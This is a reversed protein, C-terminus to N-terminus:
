RSVRQLPDARSAVGDTCLVLDQRGDCRDGSRPVNKLRDDSTPRLLQQLSGQFHLFQQTAAAVMPDRLEPAVAVAVQTLVDAQHPYSCHFDPDGSKPFNGPLHGRVAELRREHVSAFAAGLRLHRQQGVEAQLAEGAAVELPDPAPPGSRSATVSCCGAARDPTPRLLVLQPSGPGGGLAVGVQKGVPDVELGADLM